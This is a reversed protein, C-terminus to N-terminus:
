RWRAQWFRPQGAAAVGCSIGYDVAAPLLTYIQLLDNEWDNVDLYDPAEESPGGVYDCKLPVAIAEPLAAAVRCAEINAIFANVDAVAPFTTTSPTSLSTLTVTVGLLTSILDRVVTENGYIRTWDAVNFFAKSNRAAIDALVRDTIPTVWAM